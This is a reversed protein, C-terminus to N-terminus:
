KSTIKIINSNREVRTNTIEAIIDLVDDVNTRLLHVNVREELMAHDDIQINFDYWRKLQSLVEKVTANHFHIENHMWGLYQQVNVRIPEEPSGNKSLSSYYGKTLISQEVNKESCGLSVKGEIVAVSVTPNDQWARVNFKTGLVKVLAHNAIVKFPKQQDHTVQFYAEGKLHVTRDNTFKEPYSLYSGADLIVKTGDNLRLTKRQGMPVQIDTFTVKRTDQVNKSVFYIVPLVFLLTVIAFRLAFAPRYYPKRSRRARTAENQRVKHKFTHWMQDVPTPDISKYNHHWISKIQELEKDFNSDKKTPLDQQTRNKDDLYRAIRRLIKKNV